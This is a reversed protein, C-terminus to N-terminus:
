IKLKIFLVGDIKITELFKENILQYIRQPTKAVMVAYTAVTVLDDTDVIM